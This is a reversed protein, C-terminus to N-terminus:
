MHGDELDGFEANKGGVVCVIFHFIQVGEMGRFIM